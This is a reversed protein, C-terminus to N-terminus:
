ICCSAEFSEVFALFSSLTTEPGHAICVQCLLDTNRFNQMENGNSLQGKGTHIM